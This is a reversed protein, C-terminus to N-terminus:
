HGGKRFVVGSIMSSVTGQKFIVDYWFAMYVHVIIFLVFAWTLVHHIYRVTALGGLIIEFPKLVPYVLATWGAHYGAGMLILGTLCILFVMFLLGGYALSQLPGYLYKHDPPEKSVLLYFKIQKVTNNIDTWAFFDKWDAHFRSFVALYLRWVFLFLLLVGFFVHFGRTNGMFFKNVTEGQTLTFPFAIYFGTVILAFISFAMIWHNYRIAVSWEKKPVINEM